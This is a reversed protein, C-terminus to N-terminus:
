IAARVLLLVIGLAILALSTWHAKPNFARAQGRPELTVDAGSRGRHRADSLRGRWLIQGVMLVIGCVILAAGIWALSFGTEM